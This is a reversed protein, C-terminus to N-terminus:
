VASCMPLQVHPQSACGIAECMGACDIWKNDYGVQSSTQAPMPADLFKTLADDLATRHPVHNGRLILSWQLRTARKPGHTSIPTDCSGWAGYENRPGVITACGRAFSLTGIYRRRRVSTTTCIIEPAHTWMSMNTACRISASARMATLSTWSHKFQLGAILACM